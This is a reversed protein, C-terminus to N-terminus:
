GGRNKERLAQIAMLVFALPALALSIPWLLSIAMREDTHFYRHPKGLPRTGLPHNAADGVRDSSLIWIVMMGVLYVELWFFINM